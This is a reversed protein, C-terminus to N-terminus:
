GEPPRGDRLAMLPSEALRHLLDAPTEYVAVAGAAELEAASWGGTLVAICGIGTRRAAEIDWGTDGVAMTRAPDLGGVELATAFIDPAPKSQQVDASTVVEDIADDADIAKLMAPLNQPKASTGLVVGFGAEKVARLLEAAGPLPTMEEHFKEFERGHAQSLEPRQEGILEAMMRDGGMGIGRHIRAMPVDIRAARFARWWAITHFYNNDLLTGDVDFIVGPRAEAM